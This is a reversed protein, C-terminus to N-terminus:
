FSARQLRDNIAWGLSEYPVLEALIFQINKEDLNRLSAFLNQAAEKLNGKESLIMQNEIPIYPFYNQFALVGIKQNDICQTQNITTTNKDIMIKNKQMLFLRKKPAYHSELQGPAKPNASSIHTEITTNTWAELDEKSVGGHRYITIKGNKEGIITSEVGVQCAGGDLIMAIKNGLQNEVHQATTPSVYGFPNASPAALPFDLKELLQLTLSHNPIRVAVHPLQSTVLDPIINKKPLLFTLAGPCFIESLQYFVDPIDIVFKKVEEFSHTHVILPDYTPRQKAEFIKKVAKEHFANAALGYVTETPIAVLEDKKLFEIAQELNNSIM